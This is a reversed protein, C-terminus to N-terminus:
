PSGEASGALPLFVSFVSGRGAESEVTIRGGHAEVIHKIITLGLGSGGSDVGAATRSRYFREFIRGTEQRPIGIGKDAVRLVAEDGRRFVHVSVDKVQPSFKMANSLLNVLVSALAERDFRVPPIGREIDERVTFGRKDLHYRYSELTEKVTEAISGSQLHFELADREIRSMDLVNGIMNSLRESEGTIIEYAERRREETLHRQNKLTEGYLRILTLPTKLEHSINDIFRSKMAASEAQRSVDRVLLFVGLSMLGVLCGLLVGILLNEARAARRLDEIDGRTVAYRWPFAFGGTTMTLTNASLVSGPDAAAPAATEILRVRVGTDQEVQASIRPLLHGKVYEFNWCFGAYLFRDNPVDALRSYSILYPTAGVTLPFRGAPPENAYQSYAIKEKIVPVVNEEVMAAFALEELNPSSRGRVAEFRSRLEPRRGRSFGEQLARTIEEVYFDHTSRDLRWAGDVLMGYAGVLGELAGEPRGQRKAIEHLQLAALPGYPHGSRNRLRGYREFLEAYVAAGEDDKRSLFLCRGLGEWAFAQLRAVETLPRCRRYLDAAREHDKRVFAWYEAREFLEVFPSGALDQAWLAYPPEDGGARPFLVRFEGDLLFIREGSGTPGPTISRSGGAGGARLFREASLVDSEHEQLSAEIARVAREGSTWLQSEVIRKLADRRKAVASWSLYGVVLSPLLIALVFVFRIKSRYAKESASTAM